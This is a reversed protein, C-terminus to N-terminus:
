SIQKKLCTNLSDGLKFMNKVACERSLRIPKFGKTIPEARSVKRLHRSGQINKPAVIKLHQQQYERDRYRETIVSFLIIIM